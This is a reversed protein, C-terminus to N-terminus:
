QEARLTHAQAEAVVELTQPEQIVLTQQWIVLLEQDPPAVVVLEVKAALLLLVAVAEAVVRM